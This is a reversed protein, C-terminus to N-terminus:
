ERMRAKLVSAARELREEQTLPRDPKAPASRSASSSLTRSRTRQVEQQTAPKEEVVAPTQFKERFRPHKLLKEGETLSYSEVMGLLQEDNLMEGAQSAYQSATELAIDQAEDWMSSTLGFEEKTEALSKLRGVYNAVQQNAELTAKETELKEVRAILDAQQPTEPQRGLVQDTASQYSGGLKELAQLHDGRKVSQEIEEYKKLNGEKQKLEQQRRFIERERKAVQVFNKSVSQKESDQEEAGNNEPETETEPEAEAQPEAEAEIVEEKEEQAEEQVDIGKSEIWASIQRQSEEELRADAKADVDIPEQEAEEVVTEALEEAM